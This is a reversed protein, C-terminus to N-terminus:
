QDILMVQNIGKRIPRLAQPSQSDNGEFWVYIWIFCIRGFIRWGGTGDGRPCMTRDISVCSIEEAQHIVWTSIDCV